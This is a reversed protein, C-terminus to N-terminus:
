EAGSPFKHPCLTGTGGAQPKNGHASCHNPQLHLNELFDSIHKMMNQLAGRGATPCFGDSTHLAPQPDSPLLSSGPCALLYGASSKLHSIPSHCAFMVLLRPQALKAPQISCPSVVHKQRLSRLSDRVRKSGAWRSVRAESMNFHRPFPPSSSPICRRPPM